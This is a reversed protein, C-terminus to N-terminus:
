QKRATGSVTVPISNGANCTESTSTVQCAATAIFRLEKFEDGATGFFVVMLAPTAVSPTGITMTKKLICVPQGGATAMSTLSYTATWPAPPNVTGGIGAQIVGEARGDGNYVTGGATAFPSTGFTGSAVFSYSGQLAANFCPQANVRPMIMGSILLITYTALKRM